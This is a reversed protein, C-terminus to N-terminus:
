VPPTIESLMAGLNGSLPPVGQLMRVWFFEFEIPGPSGDSPDMEAHRWNSPTEELCILHFYHRREQVPPKAMHSESEREGLYRAIELKELGTEERVERLIADEPSEGEGLTGAPVQIGAEPHHVHSFVLLRDGQTIYATVKEIIDM